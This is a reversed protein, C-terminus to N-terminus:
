AMAGIGKLIDRVSTRIRQALELYQETSTGIPDEIPLSTNLQHIKERAQPHRRLIQSEREPTMTYIVTAWAVLEPTIRQSEHTTCLIGMGALAQYAGHSAPMGPRAETGASQVSVSHLVHSEALFRKAIFEAMVSRCTNGRCVFLINM